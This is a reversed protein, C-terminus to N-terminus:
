LGDNNTVEDMRNYNGLKEQYTIIIRWASFTASRNYNGLKEQYTIINWFNGFDSFGNYNGLKEQYTIIEAISQLVKM